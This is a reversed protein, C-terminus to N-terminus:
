AASLPPSVPPHTLLVPLVCGILLDVWRHVVRVGVILGDKKNMLVGMVM